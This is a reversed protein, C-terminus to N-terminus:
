WIVLLSLTDLILIFCHIIPCISISLRFDARNRTIWWWSNSAGCSIEARNDKDQWGCNIFKAPDIINKKKGQTLQWHEIRMVKRPLRYNGQVWLYEELEASFGRQSTVPYIATVDRPFQSKLKRPKASIRHSVSQNIRQLETSYHQSSPSFPSSKTTFRRTLSHILYISNGSQPYDCSLGYLITWTEQERERRNGEDSQPHSM